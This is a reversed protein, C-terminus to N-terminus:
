GAHAKSKAQRPPVTREQNQKDYPDYGELQNGRRIEVSLNALEAKAKQIQEEITMEKKM